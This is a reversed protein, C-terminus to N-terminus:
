QAPEEMTSVTGDPRIYIETEPKHLDSNNNGSTDGAAVTAAGGSQKPKEAAEADLFGSLSAGSGGGVPRVKRVRRVKKGDARVYIEGELHQDGAVSHSGSFKKSGIDAPPNGLFGSLSGGVHAPAGGNTSASDATAATSTTGTSNDANSPAPKPKRIRRVRTGDPRTIIEVNEDGADGALSAASSGAVASKKVRRVKKGDARVYVEGTLSSEKSIAIQDGAVSASGGLRPTTSPGHELFGSLSKKSPDEGSVSSASSKKVRRVLINHPHITPHYQQFRSTSPRSLNM